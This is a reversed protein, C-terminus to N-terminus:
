DIVHPRGRSSGQVTPQDIELKPPYRGRAGPKGTVLKLPIADFPLADRQKDCSLYLSKGELELIMLTDAAGRLSSSGREERGKKGSHHLILIAAGTKRLKEVESIWKSMDRSTNEDGGVFSRALTDIVILAPPDPRLKIDGLVDVLDRSEASHDPFLIPTDRRFRMGHEQTPDLGKALKSAKVRAGLPGEGGLYLVEGRRTPLGLFPLGAGVSSALDITLATKGVGPGGVLVALTGVFLLGDVLPQPQPLNIVETETLFKSADRPRVIELRRFGKTPAQAEGAMETATDNSDHDERLDSAQQECTLISEHSPMDGSGSSSELSTPEAEDPQVDDDYLPEDSYEGYRQPEDGGEDVYLLDWYQQDDIEEM